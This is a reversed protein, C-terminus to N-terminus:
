ALIGRRAFPSPTPSPKRLGTSCSPKLFYRSQEQASGVAVRDEYQRLGAYGNPLLPQGRPTSGGHHGVQARGDPM